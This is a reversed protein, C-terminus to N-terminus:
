RAAARSRGSQGGHLALNRQSACGLNWYPRNESHTLRKASLGIDQPWLGCPGAEAVLKSMTSAQHQRVDPRGPHYRARCSRARCAPPPLIFPNRADFRRRCRACAARRCLDIIIGSGTAEHRWAQAFSLVDARQSDPYARRSQPRDLDRREAVGDRLSSRIGSAPLGASIRRRCRRPRHLLRLAVLSAASWWCRAVGVPTSVCAAKEIGTTM